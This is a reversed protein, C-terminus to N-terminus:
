SKVPAARNWVVNTWFTVVKQTLCDECGMKTLAASVVSVDGTVSGCVVGLTSVDVAVLGCVSDDGAVSGCVVGLTSVDVAVM